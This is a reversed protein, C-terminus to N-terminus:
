FWKVGKTGKMRKLYSPYHMSTKRSKQPIPGDPTNRGIVVSTKKLRRQDMPDGTEPDLPVFVGNISLLYHDCYAPKGMIKACHRFCQNMQSFPFVTRRNGFELCVGDHTLSIDCRGRPSKRVYVHGARVHRAWKTKKGM